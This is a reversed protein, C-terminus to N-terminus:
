HVQMQRPDAGAALAAANLMEVGHFSPNGEPGFFFAPAQSPRSAAAPSAVAPAPRQRSIEEYVTRFADHIVPDQLSYGLFAVTRTRQLTALFDRAWSDQCWNRIERYTFVM